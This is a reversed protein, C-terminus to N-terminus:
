AEHITIQLTDTTAWDTAGTNDLTVFGGQYAGGWATFLRAGVWAVALGSSTTIVAVDIPGPTFDVPVRMTGLAVETANPVRNTSYARKLAPEAGLRTAATDWVNNAGSLTEALVVGSDVSGPNLAALLMEAGTALSIAQYRLYARSAKSVAREAGALINNIEAALAPTAVAPTLTADVGVPINSVPPTASWFIDLADAHTANTTGCRGRAVVVTNVDLVRLIKFFETQVRLLDGATRGHAAMTVRIPNNTNNWEGGSTNITSDTNIVDYEYVDTLQQGASSNFPGITVTEAEIINAAMRLIGLAKAGPNFRAGKLGGISRLGMPYAATNRGFVDRGSLLKSTQIQADKRIDGDFIPM